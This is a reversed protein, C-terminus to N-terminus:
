HRTVLSLHRSFASFQLRFLPLLLLRFVHRLTVLSLHCTILAILLQQRIDFTLITLLMAGAAQKQNVTSTAGSAM